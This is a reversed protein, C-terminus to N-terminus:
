YRNELYILSIYASILNNYKASLYNNTGITIVLTLKDNKYFNINDFNGNYIIKTPTYNLNRRNIRAFFNTANYINSSETSIFIRAEIITNIDLPIDPLLKISLSYFFGNQKLKTFPLDMSKITTKRIPTYVPLGNTNDLLILKDYSINNASNNNTLIACTNTFNIIPYSTVNIEVSVLQNEYIITDHELIIEQSKFSYLNLYVIFNTIEFFLDASILNNGKLLNGLCPFLNLINIKKIILFNAIASSFVMDSIEAFEVLLTLADNFQVTDIIYTQLLDTVNKVMNISKRIVDLNSEDIDLSTDDEYDIIESYNENINKIIKDKPFYNIYKNDYLKSYESVYKSYEGSFKNFINKLDSIVVGSIGAEDQCFKGIINQLDNTIKDDIINM